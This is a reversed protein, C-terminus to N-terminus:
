KRELQPQVAQITLAHIANGRPTNRMGCLMIESTADRAKRASSEHQERGFYIKRALAERGACPVSTQRIPGSGGSLEEVKLPVDKRLRFVKECVRTDTIFTSTPLYPSIWCVLCLIM